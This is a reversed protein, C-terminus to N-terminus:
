SGQAQVVRVRAQALRAQTLAAQRAIQTGTRQSVQEARTASRQARSALDARAAPDATEGAQRSFEEAQPRHLDGLAQGIRSTSRSRTAEELEAGAAAEIDHIRTRAVVRASRGVAVSARRREEIARLEFKGAMVPDATTAALEEFVKA